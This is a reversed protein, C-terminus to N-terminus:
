GAIAPSSQPIDSFIALTRGTDSHNHKTAQLSRGESNDALSCLGVYSEFTIFTFLCYFSLGNDEKAKAKLFGM